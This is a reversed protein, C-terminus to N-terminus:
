GLPWAELPTYRGGESRMLTLTDARWIFPPPADLGVPMPKGAARGLTLHPAFPKPDCPLESELLRARLAAALAELAPSPELGLWLVRAREMSPFGGLGATRLALTGGGAGAAGVALARRTSESDLGGLFALTLHLGEPRAWRWAGSQRGQWSGLEAKMAAPLDLAFFLRTM